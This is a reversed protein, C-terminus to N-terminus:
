NNSNTIEQVDGNTNSGESESYAKNYNFYKVKNNSCSICARILLIFLDITAGSGVLYEPAKYTRYGKM